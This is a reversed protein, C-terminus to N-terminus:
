ESDVTHDADNSDEGRLKRKLFGKYLDPRVRKTREISKKLRWKRIAAHDGSLLVEPVKYGRYESPRTYQPYELLEEEFSEEVLSDENSMYGPQLRAVADIIVLAAEEGGSLVYDGISVEEDVFHDIVRQDIGEYHGCILTMKELAAWERVRKQDLRKGSPTPFLTLGRDMHELLRFLPDPTMVMGAGGGYPYEDCRGHRDVTFDRPNFLEVRVIGEETARGKLGTELPSVFFEPFLTVVNIIM